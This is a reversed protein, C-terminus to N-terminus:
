GSRSPTFVDINISGMKGDRHLYYDMLRNENDYYSFWYSLKYTKKDYDTISPYSETDHLIIVGPKSATLTGEDTLNGYFQIKSWRDGRFYWPLPWYDKSAIVIHDSADMLQMVQRLDESNQVQVIPENIDAPIFAVHWAMTILFICGAFAFATKQWNLKYVAVFCMPLLQAILLWPVKEGVYAYFAMMGFMWIICFRFFEESKLNRDQGAQLQQLSVAALENTPLVYSRTHIWSKVKRMFRVPHLGETMFQLIGIMALIFIPLEYLLFLPIYFYMPGGLRQQNHMAVWHDIAQYWGITYAEFHIGQATISFNNGILTEPHFFFASYLTSMIAVCLVFGLLLDAKWNQPFTFRGRWIAFAFIIVFLIIIVPMEEKCCLAGAAAIGAVVAFRTQGREFWYLVAVLLLMTFFLMFIDHRLFRSFYVMDPSIAIFLAAILTQNKSIYGIRHICYVLPIILFGFLSPLLRAVLDSSGFIGFMGATVFYLFPGHYSPDYHWAGKTLLEYSFWSHIAEDHHLLKLDLQWFRIIFAIILILIFIREFSFFSKIKQTLGAAQQV